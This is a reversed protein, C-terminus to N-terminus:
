TPEGARTIRVRGCHRRAHGVGPWCPEARRGPARERWAWARFSTSGQRYATAQICDASLSPSSRTPLRLPQPSPSAGDPPPRRGDRRIWPSCPTGGQGATERRWTARAESGRVRDWRAVQPPGGSLRQRWDGVWRTAPRLRAVGGPRWLWDDTTNRFDPPFPGIVGFRRVSSGLSNGAAGRGAAEVTVLSTRCLDPGARHDIVQVKQLPTPTAQATAKSIVAQAM